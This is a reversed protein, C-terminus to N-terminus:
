WQVTHGMSQLTNVRNNLEHEVVDLQLQPQEKKLQEYFEAFGHTDMPILVKGRASQLVVCGSFPKVYSVQQVEDFRVTKRIFLRHTTVSEGTVVTKSVILALSLLGFFAMGGGMFQQVFVIQEASMTSPDNGLIFVTATLLFGILTVLWMGTARKLVLAGQTNRKGSKFIIGLMKIVLKRTLKTKM